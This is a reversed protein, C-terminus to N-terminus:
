VVTPKKRPTHAWRIKVCELYCTSVPYFILNRHVPPHLPRGPPHRHCSSTQLILSPAPHGATLHLRLWHGM